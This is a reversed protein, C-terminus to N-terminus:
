KSVINNQFAYRIIIQIIDVMNGHGGGYFTYDKRTRISGGGGDPYSLKQWFSEFDEFIEHIIHFYLSSHKKTSQLFVSIKCINM